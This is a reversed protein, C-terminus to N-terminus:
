YLCVGFVYRVTGHQVTGHGAALTFASNPRMLLGKSHLSESTMTVVRTRGITSYLLM